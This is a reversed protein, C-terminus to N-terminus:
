DTVTTGYETRIACKLMAVSNWQYRTSWLYVSILNNGLEPGLTTFSISLIFTYQFFKDYRRCYHKKDIGKRQCSYHVSLVYHRLNWMFWYLLKQFRDTNEIFASPLFTWIDGIKQKEASRNLQLCLFTKQSARLFRAGMNWNNTVQLLYKSKSSVNQMDPIRHSGLM